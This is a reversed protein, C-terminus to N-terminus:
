FILVCDGADAVFKHRARVLETPGVCGTKKGSEDEVPLMKTISYPSGTRFDVITHPRNPPNLINKIEQESFAM